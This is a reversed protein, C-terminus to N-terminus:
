KKGASLMDRKSVVARAICHRHLCRQAPTLSNSAVVFQAGPAELQRAATRHSGFYVM